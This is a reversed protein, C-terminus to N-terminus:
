ETECSSCVITGERVVPARIVRTDLDCSAALAAVCYVDFMYVGIDGMLLVMPLACIM